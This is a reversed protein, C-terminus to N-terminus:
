LLDAGYLQTIRAPHRAFVLSFLLGTIFFPVASALYLASLHRFNVWDLHLSVQSHLVIELVAVIVVANAACLWAGLQGVRWRELWERRLHSFVAGAGLRAACDLYGSVRLPLLARRLVPSHPRIGAAICLLEDPRDGSRYRSALGCRGGPGRHSM